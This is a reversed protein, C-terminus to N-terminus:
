RKCSTLATISFAVQIVLRLPSCARDRNESAATRGIVRNVHLADLCGTDEWAIAKSHLRSEGRRFGPSEAQEISLPAIRLSLQPRNRVGPGVRQELQGGAGRLDRSQIAFV